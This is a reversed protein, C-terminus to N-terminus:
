KKRNFFKKRSKTQMKGRCLGINQYTKLFQLIKTKPKEKQM